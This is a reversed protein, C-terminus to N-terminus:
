WTYRVTYRVTGTAGPDLHLPFHVTGQDPREHAPATTLTWTAWRFLREQVVVDVAEKKRNRVEVEITEDITRRKSDVNFEVQRREGVVDFANGMKILVREDRPTHPIADEGIFEMASDAEDARNVRVRGAPLPMGLGAAETNDLRLYVQVNKPGALGYSPELNPSGPNSWVEGQGDFVLIRSCPVDQALPFLELQQTSNDPITAPRGLTYLHYEFFSKEQFGASGDAAMARSEMMEYRPRDPKPARHVDGAVLKLAANAYTAGSANLISVWAGVDVTGANANAGDTYTLNYDAWWTIGETQYAVRVTQPGPAAARVDWLLTPRTILGGPLTPLDLGQYGNLLRITGSADRLVLQGGQASLLTGTIRESADGRQVVVGLERDIYKELLKDPSVLDFQYSQAVVSTDPNTLSTFSVTTPDLLAAVDAFRLTSDGGTIDLRRDHRVVAYGPVAGYGRLGQGPVPRYLEPPIAGPLASSYITLGTAQDPAASTSQPQALATPAAGALAALLAARLTIIKM